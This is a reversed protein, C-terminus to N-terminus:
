KKEAANVSALTIESLVKRKAASWITVVGTAPGRWTVGGFAFDRVGDGDVDGIHVGTVGVGSSDAEGRISTAFRPEGSESVLAYSGEFVDPETVLVDAWEGGGLDGLPLVVSAFREHEDLVPSPWPECRDVKKWDGVSWAEVASGHKNANEWGYPDGIWLRTVGKANKACCMSTGFYMSDRDPHIVHLVARERSGVIEVFATVANAERPEEGFFTIALDAKGDGDVDDLAFLRVGIGSHKSPFPLSALRAGSKGSFVETAVDAADVSTGPMGIAYDEVGDRDWDGVCATSPSAGFSHWETVMGSSRVEYQRLVVRDELAVINVTGAPETGRPWRSHRMEGIALDKAGRGDVDDLACSMWGFSRAANAPEIKGIARGTEVSVIWVRGRVRDSDNWAPDGIALDRQGGGDLDGVLAVSAGFLDRGPYAAITSPVRTATLILAEIM